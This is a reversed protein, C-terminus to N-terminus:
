SLPQLLKLTPRFPSHTYLAPTDTWYLLANDSKGLPPHTSLPLILTPIQCIPVLLLRKLAEGLTYCCKM